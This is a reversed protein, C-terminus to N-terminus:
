TRSVHLEGQIEPTHAALSIQTQSRPKSPRFQSWVAIVPSCCFQWTRCRLWFVLCTQSSVATELSSYISLIVTTQLSCYPGVALWASIVVVLVDSIKMNLSFYCHNRHVNFELGSRKLIKIIQLRTTSTLM